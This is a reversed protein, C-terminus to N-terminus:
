ELYSVIRSKKKYEKNYGTNIICGVITVEILFIVIAIESIVGFTSVFILQTFVVFLLNIIYRLM